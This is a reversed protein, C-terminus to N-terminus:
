LFLSLDDMTEDDSHNVVVCRRIVDAIDDTTMARPKGFLPVDMKVAAVASPGIPESNVSV